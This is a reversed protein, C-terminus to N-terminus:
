PQHIFNNFKLMSYLSEVFQYNSFYSWNIKEDCTAEMKVKSLECKCGRFLVFLKLSLVYDDKEIKCFRYGHWSNTKLVSCITPVFLKSFLKWIKWRAFTLQKMVNLVYKWGCIAKIRLNIRVFAKSGSKVIICKKNTKILQFICLEEKEYINIMHIFMRIRINCLIYAFFLSSYFKHMWVTRTKERQFEKKDDITGILDKSNEIPFNGQPKYVLFKM